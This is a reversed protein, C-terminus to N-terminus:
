EGFKVLVKILVTVANLQGACLLLFWVTQGCQGGELCVALYVTM